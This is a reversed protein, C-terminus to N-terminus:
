VASNLRTYIRLQSNERHTNKTFMERADPKQGTACETEKIIQSQDPERCYTAFCSCIKNLLALCVVHPRVDHGKLEKAMAQIVKEERDEAIGEWPKM